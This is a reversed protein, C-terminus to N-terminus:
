VRNDQGEYYTHSVTQLESESGNRNLFEMHNMVLLDGGFNAM